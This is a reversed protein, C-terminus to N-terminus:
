KRTNRSGSTNVLWVILKLWRASADLFGVLGALCLQISLYCLVVLWPLVPALEACLRLLHWVWTALIYLLMQALYPQFTRLDYFSICGLTTSFSWVVTLLPYIYSSWTIAVDPLLFILLRLFVLPQDGPFFFYVKSLYNCGPLKLELLLFGQRKANLKIVPGIFYRNM